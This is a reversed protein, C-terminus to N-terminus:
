AVCGAPIQYKSNLRTFTKRGRDNHIRDIWMVSQLSRRADDWSVNHGVLQTQYTLLPPEDINLGIMCGLILVWFLIKPLKSSAFDIKLLSQYLRHGLYGHQINSSPLGFTVVIFALMGLRLSEGLNDCNMLQHQLLRMQICDIQSQFTAVGMQRGQVLHENIMNTFFQLDHFIVALKPECLGQFLQMESAVESDAQLSPFMPTWSVEGDSPLLYGTNLYLHLELRSLKYDLIPNDHLYHIGGLLQVMKRLGFLHAKTADHDDFLSATLALLAVNYVTSRQLSVVGLSLRENLLTIARQLYSWTDPVPTRRHLFDEMAFISFQVSCLFSEDVTLWMMGGVDEQEFAICPEVPYIIDKLSLFRSWDRMAGYSCYRLTLGSPSHSTTRPAIPGPSSAWANQSELCAQKRPKETQSFSQLSVAADFPVAALPTDGQSNRRNRASRRIQRQTRRSDDRKNKGRMCHRRIRDRRIDQPKGEGGDLPVFEFHAPMPDRTVSAPVPKAKHRFLSYTTPAPPISNM